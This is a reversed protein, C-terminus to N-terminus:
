TRMSSTSISMEHIEDYNTYILQEKRGVAPCVAVTYTMRFILDNTM